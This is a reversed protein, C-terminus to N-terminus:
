LFVMPVSVYETIKSASTIFGDLFSKGGLDHVTKGYSLLFGMNMAVLSLFSSLDLAETGNKGDYKLQEIISRSDRDLGPYYSKRTGSAVSKVAAGRQRKCAEDWPSAGLGRGVYNEFTYPIPRNMM